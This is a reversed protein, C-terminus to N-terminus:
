LHSTVGQQMTLSNDTNMMYRSINLLIVIVLLFTLISHLIKSSQTGRRLQLRTFVLHLLMTLLLSTSVLETLPVLDWAYGSLFQILVKLFGCM